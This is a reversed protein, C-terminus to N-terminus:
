GVPLQQDKPWTGSRARDRLTLHELEEGLLTVSGATPRLLGLLIKLLTTKGAGNPGLLAYLSGEAVELNVDRLAVHHGYRHTLGQTEIVAGM